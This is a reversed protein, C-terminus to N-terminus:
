NALHRYVDVWANFRDYQNCLKVGNIKLLKEDEITSYLKEKDRSAGSNDLKEQIVRKLNRTIDDALEYIQTTQESRIIDKNKDVYSVVMNCLKSLYGMLEYDFKIHDIPIHEAEEM